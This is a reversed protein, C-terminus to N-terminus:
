RKGKRINYYPIAWSQKEWGGCKNNMAGDIANNVIAIIAIGRVTDAIFGFSRYDNSSFTHNRSLTQELVTLVFYTLCSSHQSVKIVTQCQWSM